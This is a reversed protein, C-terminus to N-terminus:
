RIGARASAPMRYARLAPATRTTGRTRADSRRARRSRRLAARETPAVLRLQHRRFADRQAPKSAIGGAIVRNSSRQRACPDRRRSRARGLSEHSRRRRRLRRRSQRAPGRRAIPARGPGPPPSCRRRSGRPDATAARLLAARTRPHRRARRAGSTSRCTASEPRPRPAPASTPTDSPRRRAARAAARPARTCSCRHPRNNREGNM